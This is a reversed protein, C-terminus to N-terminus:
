YRGPLYLLEARQRAGHQLQHRLAASLGRQWHEPAARRAQRGPTVQLNNDRAFNVCCDWALVENHRLDHHVVVCTSGARVGTESGSSYVWTVPIPNEFAM